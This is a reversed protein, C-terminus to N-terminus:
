ESVKLSRFSEAMLLTSARRNGLDVFEDLIQLLKLALDPKLPYHRESMEQIIIAIRTFLLERKWEAIIIESNRLVHLINDAFQLPDIYNGARECLDVYKSLVWPIDGLKRVAQNPLSVFHHFDGWQGNAFRAAGVADTVHTLFFTEILHHKPYGRISDKRRYSKSIDDHECFSDLCLHLFKLAHNDITPADYIYNCIVTTSVNSLVTFADESDYAFHPKVFRDFLVDPAIYPLLKAVHRMLISPWINLKHSRGSYNRKEFPPNCFTVYWDNLEGLYAIVADRHTKGELLSFFSVHEFFDKAAGWDFSVMPHRWETDRELPDNSPDIKEWVKPPPTLSVESKRKLSKLAKKFARVRLEKNKRETLDTEGDFVRRHYVMLDSALCFGRWVLDPYEGYYLAIVQFATAAVEDRPHVMIEFLAKFSPEVKEGKAIRTSLGLAAFAVPHQNNTLSRHESELPWRKIIRDIIKNAWRVHSQNTSHRLCLIATGMIASFPIGLGAEPVRTFDVDKEKTRIFSVVDDLDFKDLIERRQISEIAWFYVNAIQLYNEADERRQTEEEDESPPAEFHVVARDSEASERSVRLNGPDAFAEWAVAKRQLDAFIYDQQDEEFEIEIHDRFQSVHEVFSAKINEDASILVAISLDKISARIFTRSEIFDLAEKQDDSLGHRPPIGMISFTSPSFSVQRRLDADWVKFSKLLPLSAESIHNHQIIISSAIGVFAFCDTDILIQKLLADLDHGDAAQKLAWYHMEQLACGLVAPAVGSIFWQYVRADGHFTEQGWPFVLTLAVPTGRKRREIEHVQQWATIAHHALHKVFKIAKTPHHEFLSAFPQSRPSQPTYEGECRDMSLEDLEYSSLGQEFFLSPSQLAIEDARTKVLPPNKRLEEQRKLAQERRERKRELKALPLEELMLARCYAILEDPIHHALRWSQRIIEKFLSMNGHFGHEANAALELIEVAHKANHLPSSLIVSRIEEALVGKATSSIAFAESSADEKSSQLHRYWCMLTDGIRKSRPNELESLLNQWVKYIEIIELAHEKELRSINVAIWDLMRGWLSLDSPWSFFDAFRQRKLLDAVAENMAVQPNPITHAAQFWVLLSKTRKPDSLVHDNFEKTTKFFDANSMPALLWAHLWQKRCSATELRALESSWAGEKGYMVNALLSVIRGLLPPEGANIVEDLWKGEVDILLRLYSWEFFIDHSFSYASGSTTEYIVGDGILHELQSITEASLASARINKGSTSVGHRALDIMARQRKIREGIAVVQYGGQTWWLEILLVENVPAEFQSKEAIQHLAKAFFPRRVVEKVEASGFLMPKLSPYREALEECENDNFPPVSVDEFPQIADVIAPIWTRFSELNQDRSTCIVKWHSLDADTAILNLIDEIVGRETPSLRDIGDIFLIPDGLAEIELLLRKLDSEIGVLRAFEIWSRAGRLKDSKIFLVPGNVRNAELCKKLVVTKGSGALGSVNIFRASVLATQTSKVITTRPLALDGITDAMERLSTAYLQDIVALDASLSSTPNLHWDASLSKLISHRTWSAALGNGKRAESWFWKVLASEQDKPPNLATKLREALHAFDTSTEGLDSFRIAEFHSYFAWEEDNSITGLIARVDDRIKVVSASANKGPEFRSVFDSATASQSAWDAIRKLDRLKSNSAERCIFGFRDHNPDFNESRLTELAQTITSRFDSNTPAASITLKTKVQFSTVGSISGNQFHVVLDDLPYGNKAQQVAVKTVIGQGGANGAECAMSVLYTAICRDEYTFGAGGTLETSLAKSSKDAM